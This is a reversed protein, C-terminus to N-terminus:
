IPKRVKPKVQKQKMKPKESAEKIKIKTPVTKPKPPPTRVKKKAEVKSEVKKIKRPNFPLIKPKKVVKCTEPKIVKRTTKRECSSPGPVVVRDDLTVKTVAFKPFGGFSGM